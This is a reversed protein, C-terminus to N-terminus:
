FVHIAFNNLALFHTICLSLIHVVFSVMKCACFFAFFVITLPTLSSIHRAM